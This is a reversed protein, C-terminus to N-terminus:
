TVSPRPEGGNAKQPGILRWLKVHEVLAEPVEEVLKWYPKNFKENSGNAQIMSRLESLLDEFEQDSAKDGGELWEDLQAILASLERLWEFDPHNLIIGLFQGSTEIRGHEREYRIRQADRLARHLELVSRRLAVPLDTQSKMTDDPESRAAPNHRM